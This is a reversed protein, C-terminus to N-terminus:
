KKIRIEATNLELMKIDKLFYVLNFWSAKKRNKLWSLKIIKAACDSGAQSCGSGVADLVRM